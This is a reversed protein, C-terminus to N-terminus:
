FQMPCKVRDMHVGQKHPCPTACIILNAEKGYQPLRERKGLEWQEFHPLVVSSRAPKIMLCVTACSASVRIPTHTHLRYPAVTQRLIVPHHNVGLVVVM